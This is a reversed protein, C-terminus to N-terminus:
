IRDLAGVLCHLLIITMVALWGKKAHKATEWNAQRFEHRQMTVAM